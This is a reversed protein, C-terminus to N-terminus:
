QEDYRFYAGSKMLPNIGETLRVEATFDKAAQKALRVASHRDSLFLTIVPVEEWDKRNGEPNIQFNFRANM